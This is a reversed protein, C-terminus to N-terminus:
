PATSLEPVLDACGTGVSWTVVARISGALELDGVLIPAPSEHTTIIEEERVTEQEKCRNAKIASTHLVYDGAVTAYALDVRYANAGTPVARLAEAFFANLDVGVITVSPQQVLAWHSFHNARAEFRDLVTDHRTVLPVWYGRTQDFYAIAYAREASRGDATMRVDVFQPLQVGDPNVAYVDGVVATWARKSAGADRIANPFISAPFDGSVSFVGDDSKITKQEPDSDFFVLFGLLIASCGLVIVTGIIHKHKKRRAM